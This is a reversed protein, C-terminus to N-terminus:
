NTFSIHLRKQKVPRGSEWKKKKKKRRRQQQQQKGAPRVLLQSPLERLDVNCLHLVRLM